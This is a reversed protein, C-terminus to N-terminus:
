GPVPPYTGACSSAAMLYVAYQNFRKAYEASIEHVRKISQAPDESVAVLVVKVPERELKGSPPLWQGNADFVTLGAPFRPTIEGALFRQWQDETIAKDDKDKLGFLMRYNTVPELGKPCEQSAGAAGAMVLLLFLVGMLAGVRANM